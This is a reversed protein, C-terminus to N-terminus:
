KHSYLGALFHSKHRDRYGCNSNINVAMEREREDLMKKTILAVAARRGFMYKGRRKYKKPGQNDGLRHDYARKVVQARSFIYGTTTSVVVVPRITYLSERLQAISASAVKEDGGRRRQQKYFFDMAGGISRGEKKEQQILGGGV